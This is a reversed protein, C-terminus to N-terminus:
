KEEAGVKLGKEKYFEVAAPHFGSESLSTLPLTKKSVSKGSAHFKVFEEAYEYAVRVVERVIENDMSEHVLWSFDGYSTHGGAPPSKGWAQTKLKLTYLPWGTAKRAKACATQDWFVFHTPKTTMLEDLAPNPAWDAGAEATLNWCSGGLVGVDILGDLLASKTEGSHLHSLRLKDRPIGWGYKLYFGTAHDDPTGKLGFAVHKGIFDKPTKINPDLTAFAYFFRAFLGISKVKEVGPYARDNFPPLGEKAVQLSKPYGYIITKKKEEPSALLLTKLNVTSGKAEMCNIHLWDSHKNVLESLAFAMVYSTTGMTLSYMNVETKERAFTDTPTVTFSFAIILLLIIGGM